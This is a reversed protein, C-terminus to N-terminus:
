HSSVSKMVSPASYNKNDYCSLWDTKSTDTGNLTICYINKNNQMLLVVNIKVLAMAGAGAMLQLSLTPGSPCSTFIHMQPEFIEERM